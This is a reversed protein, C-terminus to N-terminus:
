ALVARSVQVPMAFVWGSSWGPHFDGSGDRHGLALAYCGRLHVRFFHKGTPSAPGESVTFGVADKLRYRLDARSERAVHWAAFLLEPRWRRLEVPLPRSSEQAHAATALRGM